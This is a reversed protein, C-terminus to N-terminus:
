RLGDVLYKHFCKQCLTPRGRKAVWESRLCNPNECKVLRKCGTCKHVHSNKPKM